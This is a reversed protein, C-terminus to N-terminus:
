APKVDNASQSADNPPEPKIPVEIMKDFALSFRHEEGKRKQNSTFDVRRFTAPGYEALWTEGILLPFVPLDISQLPPTIGLFRVKDVRSFPLALQFYYNAYYLVFMKEPIEAPASANRTYLQAFPAPFVPPGSVSHIMVSLIGMGQAAEDHVESTIFERAWRYDDVESEDLLCLAMKLLLKVLHIPVYSPRTTILQASNTAEDIVLPDQGQITKIHLGEAEMSVELGTKNDKFKPVKRNKGKIQNFTRALGLYNAFSDEYKAFLANCTDCEFHSLINRNGMFDPMVHADKRFSVEPESKGCFRCIRPTPTGLYFPTDSPGVMMECDYAGFFQKARQQNVADAPMPLKLTKTIRSM